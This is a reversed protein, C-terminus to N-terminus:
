IKLEGQSFLTNFYEEIDSQRIFHNCDIVYPYVPQSRGKVNVAGLAEHKTLAALGPEDLTEQSIMVGDEDALSCMRSAINVVDGVVTYQMRDESGLNGALMAGSNIGIRFKITPLDKAKRLKSIRKSIQQILM